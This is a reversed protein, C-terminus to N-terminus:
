RLIAGCANTDFDFANSRVRQRLRFADCGHFIVNWCAASHLRSLSETPLGREFEFSPIRSFRRRNPTTHAWVLDRYHNGFCCLPFESIQICLKAYSNPTELLRGIRRGRQLDEAFGSILHFGHLQM